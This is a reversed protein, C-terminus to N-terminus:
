GYNLKNRLPMFYFIAQSFNDYECAMKKTSYGTLLFTQMQM